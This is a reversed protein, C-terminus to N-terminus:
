EQAHRGSMLNQYAAYDSLSDKGKVPEDAASAVTNAAITEAYQHIREVFEAVDEVPYWHTKWKGKVEACDGTYLNWRCLYDRSVKEASVSVSGIKPEAFKITCRNPSTYTVRAGHSDCLCDIIHSACEAVAPNTVDKLKHYPDSM